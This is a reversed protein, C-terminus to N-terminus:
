QARASEFADDLKNNLRELGMQQAQIHGLLRKHLILERQEAGQVEAECDRVLETLKLLRQQVRAMQRRQLIFLLCILLGLLLLVILGSEVSWLITFVIGLATLVFGLGAIAKDRLSMM